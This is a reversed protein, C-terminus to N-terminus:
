LVSPFIIAIKSLEERMKESDGQSNYFLNIREYVDILDKQKSYLFFTELVINNSLILIVIISTVAVALTLFLKIRISKVNEKIKNLKM